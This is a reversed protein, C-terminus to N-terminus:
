LNNKTGADSERDGHMEHDNEELSPMPNPIGRSVSLSKVRFSIADKEMEAAESKRLLSPRYFISLSQDRVTDVIESEVIDGQYSLSWLNYKKMIYVVAFFNYSSCFIFFLRAYIFTYSFDDVLLYYVDGVILFLEM